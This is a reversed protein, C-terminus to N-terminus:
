LLSTPRALGVAVLQDGLQIQAAKRQKLDLVCWATAALQVLNGVLPGKLLSDVTLVSAQSVVLRFTLLYRARIATELEVFM